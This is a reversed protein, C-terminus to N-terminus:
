LCNDAATVVLRAAQWAGLSTAWWEAEAPDCVAVIEQMVVQTSLHSESSARRSPRRRKRRLRVDERLGPLLQRHPEVHRGQRGARRYMDSGENRRQVLALRQRPGQVGEGRGHVDRLAAEVRAQRRRQGQALLLAGDADQLGQLGELRGDRRGGRGRGGAPRPDRPAVEQRRRRREGACVLVECPPGSRQGPDRSERGVAAPGGRVARPRPARGRVARRGDPPCAGHIKRLPPTADVPTKM